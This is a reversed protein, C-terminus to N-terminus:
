VDDDRAEQSQSLTIRKRPAAGEPKISYGAAVAREILADVEATESSSLHWEKGGDKPEDIACREELASIREANRLTMLTTNVEASSEADWGLAALQDDSYEAILEDDSDYMSLAANSYRSRGADFFILENLPEEEPLEVREEVAVVQLREGAEANVVIDLPEPSLPQGEVEVGCGVLVLALLALLRKM